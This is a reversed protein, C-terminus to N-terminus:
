DDTWQGDGPWGSARELHHHTDFHEDDDDDDDYINSNSQAGM